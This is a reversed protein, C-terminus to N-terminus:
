VLEMIDDVSEVLFEQIARVNDSLATLTSGPAAMGMGVGFTRFGLEEKAALYERMWRESVSCEDDTVMVLDARRKGDANYEEKLINIAHTLPAEFNTGGNFHKAGFQLALELNPRGGPFRYVEVQNASSFLIGVFDRGEVRARELLALGWAKSFVARPIGSSDVRNMSSSTDILVIMSGQGAPETGRYTKVMLQGTSFRRLFDLRLMRHARAQAFESALVDELRNGLDVSYFHERGPQIKNARLATERWRFRGLLAAFKSLENGMLRKALAARDEISMMSIEGDDKGWARMVMLEEALQDNVEQLAERVPQRLEQQARGAEQELRTYAAEMAQEAAESGELAAELAAAAAQAADRARQQAETLPGEGQYGDLADSLAQDAQEGQSAAAELRQQAQEQQQAAEEARRQAEQQQEKAKDLYSRVRETVALTAMAAGYKNHRTKTRTEATEPAEALLKAVTWNTLRSPDMESEPRLGPADQWFRMLTDRVLDDTHGYKTNLDRALETLAPVEDLLERHILGDFAGVPVADVAAAPKSRHLLSKAKGVLNSLISM